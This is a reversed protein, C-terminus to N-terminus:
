RSSSDLRIIDQAMTGLNTDYEDGFSYTSVDVGYISGLWVLTGLDLLIQGAHGIPDIFIASESEGSMADLEPINNRQFERRLEVAARGHPITFINTETYEARLNDMLALWLGYVYNYTFEYLRANSYNEPYPVWPMAFAFTINPNRSLAYNMWNTVGEDVGTELFGDSCCIMTLLDVDGEDLLSRIENRKEENMWLALPSGTLGGSFVSHQTHNIGVSSAFAPLRSAFPRGFSHGIYLSNYGDLMTSGDANDPEQRAQESSCSSIRITSSLLLCASLLLLLSYAKTLGRMKSTKRM